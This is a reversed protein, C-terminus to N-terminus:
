ASSHDLWFDNMRGQVKVLWIFWGILPILIWLGTAGSVPAVKGERAYLSGIEAPLLFINIIGFVFAFLLALGGGIGEGSYQKLEKFVSYQWYLGYIGLTIITLLVVSVTARQNGIQGLTTARRRKTARLQLTGRV